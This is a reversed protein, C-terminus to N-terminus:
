IFVVCSNKPYLEESNKSSSYNIIGLASAPFYSSSHTYEGLYKGNNQYQFVVAEATFFVNGDV